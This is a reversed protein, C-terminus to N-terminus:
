AALDGGDGDDQRDEQKRSRGRRSAVYDTISKEAMVDPIDVPGAVETKGAVVENAIAKAIEQVKEIEVNVQKPNQLFYKGTKIASRIDVAHHIQVPQGNTTYLIM